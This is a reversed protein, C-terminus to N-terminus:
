GRVTRGAGPHMHLRSWLACDTGLAMLKVLIYLAGSSRLGPRAFGREKVDILEMKKMFLLLRRKKVPIEPRSGM